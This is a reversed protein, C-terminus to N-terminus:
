QGFKKRIFSLASRIDKESLNLNGGKAPKAMPSGPTQYGEIINKMLEVDSKSLPSNKKSFNTSGPVTGVGNFYQQYVLNDM